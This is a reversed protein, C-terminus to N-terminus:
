SSRKPKKPGLKRARPVIPLPRDPDIWVLTQRLIRWTRGEAGQLEVQQTETDFVVDALTIPHNYPDGAGPYLVRDGPRLEEAAIRIRQIPQWNEANGIGSLDINTM